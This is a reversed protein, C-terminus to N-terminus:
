ETILKSSQAPRELAKQMILDKGSAYENVVVDPQVGHGDNLLRTTHIVQFMPVRFQLGSNSLRLTPVQMGASVFRSGGTEEGIFTARNQERLYAAILSAASATGGNTLVTLQGAFQQRKPQITYTYRVRQETRSVPMRLTLKANYVVRLLQNGLGISARGSARRYREFALTTPQPLLRKLLSTATWIRGGTNNRVDLVLQRISQKQLLRIARNLKFHDLLGGVSRLQLVAVDPQNYLTYLAFHTSRYLVRHPQDALYAPPSDAKAKSAMRIDRVDGKTSVVTLQVSDALGFRVAYLSSFQRNVAWRKLSSNPGDSSFYLQLSDAIVKASRGNIQRITDGTDRNVLQNSPTLFVNIPFVTTAPKISRYDSAPLSITTHLCQLQASAVRAIRMFQRATMPQEIQRGITEFKQYLSGQSQYNAYGPHWSELVTRMQNLDARLQEQSLVPQSKGVKLCTVLSLLTIILRRM